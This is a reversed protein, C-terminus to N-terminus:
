PTTKYYGVGSGTNGINKKNLNDKKELIRYVKTVLSLHLQRHWLAFLRIVYCILFTCCMISSVITITVNVTVVNPTAMCEATDLLWRM